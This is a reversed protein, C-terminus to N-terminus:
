HGDTPGRKDVMSQIDLTPARKAFDALAATATNCARQAMESNDGALDHSIEVLATIAERAVFLIFALERENAEYHRFVDLVIEHQQPM